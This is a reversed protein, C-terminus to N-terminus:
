SLLDLYPILLFLFVKSSIPFRWAKPGVKKKQLPGATSGSTEMKKVKKRRKWPFLGDAL